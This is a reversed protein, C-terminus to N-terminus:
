KRTRHFDFRKDNRWNTQYETIARHSAQSIKILTLNREEAPLALLEQKQAHEM